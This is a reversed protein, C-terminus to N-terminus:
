IRIHWTGVRLFSSPFRPLFTLGKSMSVKSRSLGLLDLNDRLLQEMVGSTGHADGNRQINGADQDFLNM